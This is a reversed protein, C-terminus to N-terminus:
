KLQFKLSQLIYRDFADNFFLIKVGIVVVPLPWKFSTKFRAMDKETTVLLEAQTQTAKSIIDALQKECYQNHDRFAAHGQIKAKFSRVTRYFDDNRAIASFLYVKKDKLDALRFPNNTHIADCICYLFPKQGAWFLSQKALRSALRTSNLPYKVGSRTFIVAHADSIASFSERLTGRPM